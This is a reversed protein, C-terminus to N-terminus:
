SVLEADAPETSETEQPDPLFTCRGQFVAGPHLSLSPTEIDGIVRATSGLEVRSHAKIDGRVKGYIIAVNVTVNADIEGGATTILTGEASCVRGALYGDVSLTGEFRIERPQEPQYDESPPDAPSDAKRLAHPKVTNLWNEFHSSPDPDDPQKLLPQDASLDLQTDPRSM